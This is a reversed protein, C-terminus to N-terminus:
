GLEIHACIQNFDKVDMLLLEHMTPSKEDILITRSFIVAINMPLQFDSIDAVHGVRVKFM